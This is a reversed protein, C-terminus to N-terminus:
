RVRRNSRVEKFRGNLGSQSYDPKAHGPLNRVCASLCDVLDDHRGEPFQELEQLFVENWDARVLEINGQQWLAAAPEAMILKNRTIARSIVTFGQLMQLYSEAQEKGAQGPDRPVSLWIEKGDKHAMNKVLSRVDAAKRRVRVVDAIVIKGNARRGALVGCTWDPDRGESEESAALDWSRIWKVVDNPKWDLITTDFRPFYMGAVPRIKWNGDLLRAREVRSMAKLRGIYSPDTKLGLPNDTAKSPVFTVSNIDDPGCDHQAMLEAKSDAWILKDDVRILYRLVGSREPIPYGTEQNIWWSIFEAVWSDSDPNTSGRIYPKIGSMSRARSLMYFFQFRSFHTLEDYCNKNVLRSLTIYHNVQEVSLDYVKRKGIPTMFCSGNQVSVSALRREKRYPHDYEFQHDLNYRQIHDKADMKLCLGDLSVVDGQLPLGYQDSNLAGLLQEDCLCFDDSYSSLYDVTLSENPAYSDEDLRLHCDLMKHDLQLHQEYLTVQACLPLLLLGDQLSDCSKLTLSEENISEEYVVVNLLRDQFSQLLELQQELNTKPYLSTQLPFLYKQLVIMPSIHQDHFVSSELILFLLSADNSYMECYSAWSGSSELVSHDIPHVQSAIFKCSADYTEALVCDAYRPEFTRTIAKPGELTMVSCGVVVDEINKYTNDSMLVPTGEEVCILTMQSGQYNLVTDENNLHSFTIQAGSPFIWRPSPQARYLGGLHPYVDLSTDRLGGPSTIQVSERRFIIGQYRPNGVHRAAELLLSYTKGGFASGGTIAIDASTQLFRTQAGEQPRIDVM